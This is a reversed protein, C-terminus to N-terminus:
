DNRPGGPPRWKDMWTDIFHMVLKRLDNVDVGLAILGTVWFLYRPPRHAWLDLGNDTIFLALCAAGAVLRVVIIAKNM